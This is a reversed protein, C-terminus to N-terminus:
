MGRMAEILGPEEGEPVTPADDSAAGDPPRHSPDGAAIPQARDSAGRAAAEQHKAAERRTPDAGDKGGTM